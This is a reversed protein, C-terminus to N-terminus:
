RSQHSVKKVQGRFLAGRKARRRRTSFCQSWFKARRLCNSLRTQKIRCNCMKSSKTKRSFFNEWRLSTRQRWSNLLNQRKKNLIKVVNKAIIGVVMKRKLRIRRAKLLSKSLTAYASNTAQSREEMRVRREWKCRLLAQFTMQCSSHFPSYM